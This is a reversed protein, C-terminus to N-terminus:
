DPSVTPAEAIVVPQAVPMSPAATRVPAIVPEQPPVGAPRAHTGVLDPESGIADTVPPVIQHRESAPGGTRRPPGAVEQLVTDVGGDAATDVDAGDADHTVGGLPAAPRTLVRDPVELVNAVVHQPHAPSVELPPRAATRLGVVPPTVDDLVADLSSGSPEDARDAAQAAAGTLLWAAGALGSVVVLRLDWWSRRREAGQIHPPLPRSAATPSGSPSLNLARLVREFGWGTM